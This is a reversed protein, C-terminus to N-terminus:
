TPFIAFGGQRRPWPASPFYRIRRTSAALTSILTWTDFFSGNYPHDQIGIIDLGLDDATKALKFINELNSGYPTISLGFVPEKHLEVNAM